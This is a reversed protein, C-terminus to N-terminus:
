AAEQRLEAAAIVYMAVLKKHYAKMADDVEATAARLHYAAKARCALYQQPVPLAKIEEATMLQARLEFAEANVADIRQQEQASPKGDMRLLTIVFGVMITLFALAVPMMPNNFLTNLAHM